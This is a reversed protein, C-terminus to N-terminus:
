FKYGERMKDYLLEAYQQGLAVDDPNLNSVSVGSFVKEVKRSWKIARKMAKDAKLKKKKAKMNKKVAKAYKKSTTAKAMAKDAKAEAKVQKQRRKVTKADLKRLKQMGKAYTGAPDKRVGWKMGLVGYHYLENNTKANM